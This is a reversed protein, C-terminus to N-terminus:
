WIRLVIGDTKARLWPKFASMTKFALPPQNKNAPHGYLSNWSPASSNEIESRPSLDGFDRAGHCSRSRPRRSVGLAIKQYRFLLDNEYAMTPSFRTEFCLAAQPPKLSETVVAVFPTNKTTKQGYNFPKKTDKMNWFIVLEPKLNLCPQQSGVCTAM